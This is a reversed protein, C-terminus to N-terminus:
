CQERLKKLAKTLHDKLEDVKIPCDENLRIFWSTIKDALRKEKIDFTIIGEAELLYKVKLRSDLVKDVFPLM